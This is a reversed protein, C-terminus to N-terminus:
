ANDKRAKKKRPQDVEVPAAEDSVGLEKLQADVRNEQELAVAVASKVEEPKVEEKKEEEKPPETAPEEKKEEPKEVPKEEPIPIDIKKEPIEIGGPPTPMTSPDMVPDVLPGPFGGMLKVTISGAKELRAIKERNEWFREVSVAMPPMRARLTKGLVVPEEAFLSSRRQAVTLAKGPKVGRSIQYYPEM